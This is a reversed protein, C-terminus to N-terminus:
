AIIPLSLLECTIRQPQLERQNSINQSAQRHFTKENIKAILFLKLLISTSTVKIEIIGKKVNSLFDRKKRLVASANLIELGIIEKKSNFDIILGDRELSSHYHNKNLKVYLIDDIPNYTSKARIAKM